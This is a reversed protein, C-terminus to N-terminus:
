PEVLCDLNVARCHRPQVRGNRCTLAPGERIRETDIRGAQPLDLEEKEFSGIDRGSIAFNMQEHPHDLISPAIVQIDHYSSRNKSITTRYEILVTAVGTETSWWPCMAVTAM